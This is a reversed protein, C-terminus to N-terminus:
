RPTLTLTKIRAKGLPPWYGPAINQASFQATTDDGYQVSVDYIGNYGQLGVVDAARAGSAGSSIILSSPANAEIQAGLVIISGNTATSDPGIGVSLTGTFNPTFVCQLRHTVGDGMLAHTLNSVTGAASPSTSITGGIAGVLRTENGGNSRLICRMRGSTGARYYLTIGLPAAATTAPENTHLLRAWGAGNSTVQVGPFVGLASLALNTSSTGGEDWGTGLVASSYTLLNQQSAELLLGLPAGTVPNHDFRPQNASLQVIDGHQSLATAPSARSFAVGSPLQGKTFDMVIPGASTARQQAALTAISIGLGLM